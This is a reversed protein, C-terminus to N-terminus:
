SKIVRGTDRDKRRGERRVKKEEEGVEKRRGDKGEKRGERM